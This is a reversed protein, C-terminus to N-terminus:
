TGSTKATSERSLKGFVFFGLLCGWAASFMVVATDSIMDFWGFTPNAKPTLYLVFLVPTDIVIGIAFVILYTTRRWSKLWGKAACLAIVVPVLLFFFLLLASEIDLNM